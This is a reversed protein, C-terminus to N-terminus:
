PPLRPDAQSRRCIFQATPYTRRRAVFGGRFSRHAIVSLKRSHSQRASDAKEELRGLRHLSKLKLILV